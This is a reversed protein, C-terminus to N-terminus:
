HQTGQCHQDRHSFIQSCASALSSMVGAWVSFRSGPPLMAAAVGCIPPRDSRVPKLHSVSTEGITGSAGLSPVGSMHSIHQYNMWVKCNQWVSKVQSQRLRMVRESAFMRNINPTYQFSRTRMTKDLGHLSTRICQGHSFEVHEAATM